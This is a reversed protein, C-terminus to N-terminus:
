AQFGIDPQSPEQDCAGGFLRLALRDGGFSLGKFAAIAAELKTVAEQGLRDAMRDSRDFLIEVNPAYSEEGFILNKLGPINYVGAILVCVATLAGVVAMFNRYPLKQDLSARTRKM